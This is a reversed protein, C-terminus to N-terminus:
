WISVRIKEKMQGIKVGIKECCLIFCFNWTLGYFGM